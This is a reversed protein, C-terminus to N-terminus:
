TWTTKVIGRFESRNCQLVFADKVVQQKAGAGCSEQLDGAIGPVETSLDAEEAHEVGPVLTQLMM